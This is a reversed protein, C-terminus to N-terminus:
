ILKQRGTSKRFLLYKWRWYDPQLCIQRRTRPFEEKIGSNDPENNGTFIFNDM